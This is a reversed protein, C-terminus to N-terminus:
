GPPKIGYVGFGRGSRCPSKTHGEALIESNQSLNAKAISKVAYFKSPDNKFCAKSVTGYYGSSIKCAIDYVDTINEKNIQYISSRSSKLKSKSVRQNPSTKIVNNERLCCVGM